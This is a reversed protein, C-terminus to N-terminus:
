EGAQFAAIIAALQEDTAVFTDPRGKKKLDIKQKAQGEVRDMIEKTARFRVNPDEDANTADKVLLFMMAEKRTMKINLLKGSEDFDEVKTGSKLLQRLIKKFSKTGPKKGNPNRVEGKQAPM